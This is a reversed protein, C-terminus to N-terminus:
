IQDRRRAHQAALFQCGVRGHDRRSSPRHASAKGDCQTSTSSLRVSLRDSTAKLAMRPLHWMMHLVLETDDNKWRRGEWHMWKGWVACYRWDSAFRRTFDLALSDDTGWVSNEPPTSAAPKVSARPGEALFAGVDFGAAIASNCGLGRSRRRLASDTRRM